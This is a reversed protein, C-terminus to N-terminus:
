SAPAFGPRAATRPPPATSSRELLRTPVVTQNPTPVGAIMDLVLRAAMAGQDSAPQAMTTLGVLEGLDHGDVGIVSVDQPVRLGADRLALIAGMAMEDSAAFVATVDPARLLLARMSARGGAVDFDGHAELRPDVGIGAAVLADRWGAARDVPPSWLAVDDAAGTIHAIRRHGLGILHETAARATARDDLRVTVQGFGGWGICVLPHGLGLLSEVEEEALPLGVVLIGDVRRRLVDADVRAGSTRRRGDFTYLLVDFGHARLTGEAGEIVNSFFWRSIWPSILGITRTRGSALSAASPSAVYGLQAAVTRVRERTTKNVNPLDRLARSVTATSVGAARAVDDIGAAM